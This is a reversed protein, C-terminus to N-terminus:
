PYQIYNISYKGKMPMVSDLVSDYAGDPSFNEGGCSMMVCWVGKTSFYNIIHKGKMPMVSDLASDPSFSEGGCLM